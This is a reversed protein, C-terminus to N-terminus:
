TKTYKGLKVILGRGICKRGSEPEASSPQITLIQNWHSMERERDTQSFIFMFVESSLDWETEPLIVDSQGPRRIHGTIQPVAAESHLSWFVVFFTPSHILLSMRQEFGSEDGCGTEGREAKFIIWSRHLHYFKLLAKSYNFLLIIIAHCLLSRSSFIPENQGLPETLSVKDHRDLRSGLGSRM